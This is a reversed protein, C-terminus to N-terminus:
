VNRKNHNSGTPSQSSRIVRIAFLHAANVSYRKRTSRAPRDRARLEFRHAVDYPMAAGIVFTKEDIPVDTQAMATQADDVDGGTM